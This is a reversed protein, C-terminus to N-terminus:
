LLKSLVAVENLKRVILDRISNKFENDALEKSRFLENEYCYYTENTDVGVSGDVKLYGCKYLTPGNDDDYIKIIKVKFPPM